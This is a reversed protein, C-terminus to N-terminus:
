RLQLQRFAASQYALGLIYPVRCPDGQPRKGGLSTPHRVFNNRVPLPLEIFPMSLTSIATTRVSYLCSLEPKFM